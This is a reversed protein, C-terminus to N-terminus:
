LAFIDFNNVTRGGGLDSKPMKVVAIKDGKKVGANLLANKLGANGMLITRAGHEGEFLAQPIHKETVEGTEKDVEQWPRETLEIFTGTLEEGVAMKAASVVTANLKKRPAHTQAQM